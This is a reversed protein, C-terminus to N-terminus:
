GRYTHVYIKVHRRCMYIHADIWLAHIDSADRDSCAHPLLRQVDVEQGQGQQQQRQQIHRYTYIYIFLMNMSTYTIFPCIYIHIDTNIHTHILYTCTHIDYM